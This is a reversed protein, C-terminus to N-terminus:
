LNSCQFSLIIGALDDICNCVVVRTYLVYWRWYASEIKAERTYEVVSHVSSTKSVQAHFLSSSVLYIWLCTYLHISCVM